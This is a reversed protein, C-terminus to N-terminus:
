ADLFRARLEPTPIRCAEEKGFWRYRRAAIFDYVVDRLPRPVVSFAALIPWGGSLRRAVRLAASSRTYCRGEEVLVLSDLAEVDIGCGEALERGIDSQLAAFRFRAEPDRDIVFQVSANCLNCVGDFLLVPGHADPRVPM